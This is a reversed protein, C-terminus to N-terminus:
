ALRYKIAAKFEEMTHCLKLGYKNCVMEINGKRWFGDPVCVIPNKDKYLGLELLSIPGKTEPDFFFVIEDAHDLADMEWTVQQFFQPQNFGQSWSKDWDTRRPNYFDVFKGPRFYKIIEEQWDKCNGMEISGALFVKTNKSKKDIMNPPTFVRRGYFM